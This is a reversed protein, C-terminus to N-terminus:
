PAGKGQATSLAEDNGGWIFGADGYYTPDDELDSAAGALDWEREDDGERDDMNRRDFGALEPELDCDGDIADALAILQEILRDLRQRQHPTVEYPNFHMTM